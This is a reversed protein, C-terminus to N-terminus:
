RPSKGSPRDSGRGGPSEGTRLTVAPLTSEIEEQVRTEPVLLLAGLPPLRLVMSQARGHMPTDETEIFPLTEFSSGGFRSDDSCLREIYRGPAPAGIRYNHRPVPTMNLVVVVHDRFSRRVYALVSNEKDSCDIWEFGEHDPDREWFAPYEHYIRGLETLFAQLEQRRPDDNLHWDVSGDHNWERHQAVETGMFLLQKGPRTYQYTLLMRLNALKQWWDGPMKEILHRKGHVVEDHSLSNIFRESHEYIMSFTLDDQHFKRHVPDKAFYQLTDHMWGMNWKFTYGLGGVHPARTVGFWSTSEEAVIIAGSVEEQIIQNTSRVFSIAEINEVGGHQNPVWDGSRRSYDLYLMSAVADVRLGDIHYEKLWYLANGVLFNKVEGRAYNFILTGWDPHEGRRPDDHEYLATGDFRRLAFDDRPFHAPVWDVIIGIKQQHLYDVFYRFDDPTGYRATPAYYGTVQYGWSGYFAHEAVPMLEVHTFGFRKVHAALRPALERYSLSRNGEEPVRAWSGLHLEYINVPARLIDRNAREEMWEQDQWDHTQQTVCSAQAPPLEMAFAYPDTKVRLAGERTKIEFKYFAGVGVGPLFLEWVGSGGLVRMPYVRGDWECFDGIVSVRRAAPAWVAFSTGAIGDIVRPHAGMVEWVRRHQGEAFLYLDLEGVTPMFRYPDDREVRTGDPFHWLLRYALPLTRGPLFVAFLGGGLAQMHHPSDGEVLCFAGAAHPNLTRITVGAIGHVTGSHAGLLQHPDHHEGNRLREAGQPDGLLQLIDQDM